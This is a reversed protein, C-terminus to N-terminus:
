TTKALIGDIDIVAIVLAFVCIKTRSVLLASGELNDCLARVFDKGELM